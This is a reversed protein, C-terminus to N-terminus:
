YKTPMCCTKLNPNQFTLIKSIKFKWRDLLRFEPGFKWGCRFKTYALLSPEPSDTRCAILILLEHVPKFINKLQSWLWYLISYMMAKDFAFLFCWDSVLSPVPWPWVILSSIPWPWVSLSTDSWSNISVKLDSYWDSGIDSESDLLLKETSAVQFQWWWM